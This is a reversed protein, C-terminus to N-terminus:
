RPPRCALPTLMIAYPTAAMATLPTEPEDLVLARDPDREVVHAPAPDASQSPPPPALLRSRQVPLSITKFLCHLLSAHVVDHGPRNFRAALHREAMAMGVGTAFGAGLPGTTTEVAPCHKFEPHGPTKSGWQRFNKLDDLAYDYGALHLTSYLLM